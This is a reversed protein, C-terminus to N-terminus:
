RYAGCDKCCLADHGNRTGCRRCAWGEPNANDLKARSNSPVYGGPADEAPADETQAPEQPRLSELCARSASADEVLQGFAAILLGAAWAILCGEAMTLLSSFVGGTAEIGGYNLSAGLMGVIGVAVAIAMGGYCVVKAMLKLKRGPQDFM